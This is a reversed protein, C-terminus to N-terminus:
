RWKEVLEMFEAENLVRIGLEQAKTLKSGSDEGAIVLSTKKSVSGTVKAGHAALLQGAETRGMSSLKGTLVITQGALEQGLPEEKEEVMLVGAEKLRALLALHNAQELYAVVSQAMTPGIEDVAALDDVTMTLLRDM